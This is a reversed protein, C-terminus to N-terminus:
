YGPNQVMNSNADIESSLIPFQFRHDTFKLVFQINPRGSSDSLEGEGDLRVIDKNLRKLTHYRDYECFLELRRQKMIETLLANGTLADITPKSGVTYLGREKLVVILDALAASNNVAVQRMYSEARTLYMEAGRILKINVHNRVENADAVDGIYKVVHNAMYGGFESTSFYAAKRIDSSSYLSVLSKPAVFESKYEGGLFQNFVNGIKISEKSSIVLKFYVGVDSKDKWVKPFEASTAIKSSSADIAYGAYLAANTYDNEALYVRALIAAVSNKHLRTNDTNIKMKVAAEETLLGYAELLEKKIDIYNQKVTQRKPKNESDTSRVYPIGLDTTTAVNVAKGMQRVLEFHMLARIALAEGKLYKFSAIEEGETPIVMKELLTSCNIIATYPNLWMFNSGSNLKWDRFLSYTGRGRSFSMLNDTFADNLILYDDNGYVKQTKSYVGRIANGCDNLTNYAIDPSLSQHPELELMDTCSSLVVILLLYFIKKM